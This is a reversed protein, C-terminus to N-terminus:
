GEMGTCGGLLPFRDYDEVAMQYLTEMEWFQPSPMLGRDHRWWLYEHWLVHAESPRTRPPVERV